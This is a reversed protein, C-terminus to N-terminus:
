SYSVWQNFLHESRDAIRCGKKGFKLIHLACLILLPIVLCTPTM